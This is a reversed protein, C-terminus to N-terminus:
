ALDLVLGFAVGFLPCWTRLFIGSIQISNPSVVALIPLLNTVPLRSKNCDSANQIGEVKALM